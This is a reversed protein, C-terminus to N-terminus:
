HEASREYQLFGVPHLEALLDAPTVGAFARVEHVLHAQDHYGHDVALTAWGRDVGRQRIHRVVRDFRAIRAFVKPSLGVAASFRRELQRPSLAVLPALADISIRGGSRRILRVAESAAVDPLALSSARALLAAGLRRVAAHVPEDIVASSLREGMAGCVDSLPVVRNAVDHPTVDLLARVGAPRLCAGVVHTDPAYDITVGRLLTGVVYARATAGTPLDGLHFVLDASGDPIVRGMTRVGAPTARLEWFSEVWHALAPPAPGERYSIV